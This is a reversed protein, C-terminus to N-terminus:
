AIKGGPYRDLLTDDFAPVLLGGVARVREQLDSSEQLSLTLGVPHGLEFNGFRFLGDTWL